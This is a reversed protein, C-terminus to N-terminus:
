RRRYKEHRQQNHKRENRDRQMDRKYHPSPKHRNRHHEHRRHPKDSDHWVRVRDHHDLHYRHPLTLSGHWRGGDRYYYRGSHIHFYVDVSPYYYYHYPDHYYARKYIPPGDHYYSSCGAVGTIMVVVFVELLFRRFKFSSM